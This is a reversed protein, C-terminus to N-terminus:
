APPHPHAKLPQSAKKPQPTPRRAPTARAAPTASPVPYQIHPQSKPRPTTPQNPPSKSPHAKIERTSFCARRPFFFTPLKRRWHDIECARPTNRDTARPPVLEYDSVPKLGGRTGEAGCQIPMPYRCSASETRRMIRWEGRPATEKARRTHTSRQTSALPLWWAQSMSSHMTDSLPCFTLLSYM